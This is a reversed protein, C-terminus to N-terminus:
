CHPLDGALLWAPDVRAGRRLSVSVEYKELSDRLCVGVWLESIEIIDIAIRTESLCHEDGELSKRM